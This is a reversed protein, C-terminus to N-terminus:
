HGTTHIGDKMVSANGEFLLRGSENRFHLIVDSFMKVLPYRQIEESFFKVDIFEIQLLLEPKKNSAGGAFELSAQAYVPCLLKQTDGCHRDVVDRFKQTKFTDSVKDPAEFFFIPFGRQLISPLPSYLQMGSASLRCCFSVKRSVYEMDGPLNIM